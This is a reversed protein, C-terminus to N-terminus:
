VMFLFVLKFFKDVKSNNVVIKYFRFDSNIMSSCHKCYITDKDLGENIANAM